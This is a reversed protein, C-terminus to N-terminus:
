TGNSKDLSTLVRRFTFAVMVTGVFALAVGVSTSSFEQGFSTFTTDSSRGVIAVIVGGLLLIAGLAAVLRAVLSLVENRTPDKSAPARNTTVNSERRLYREIRTATRPITGNVFDQGTVESDAAAQMLQDFLQWDVGADDAFAQLAEEFGANIESKEIAADRSFGALCLGVGLEFCAVVRPSIKALADRTKHRAPQFRSVDANLACLADVDISISLKRALRETNQKNSALLEPPQYCGYVLSFMHIGLHFADDLEPM